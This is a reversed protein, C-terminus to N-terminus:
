SQSKKLILVAVIAVVAVIGSIMTLKSLAVIPLTTTLM